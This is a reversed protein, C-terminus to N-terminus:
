HAVREFFSIAGSRASLIRDARYASVGIEIKAVGTTKLSSFWSLSESTRAEPGIQLLCSKRAARAGRVAAM